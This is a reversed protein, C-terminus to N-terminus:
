DSDFLPQGSLAPDFDCVFLELTAGARRALTAAKALAPQAETTPDLVALIRDLRKMAPGGDSMELINDVSQAASVAAAIRPLGQPFYRDAGTNRTCPVRGPM